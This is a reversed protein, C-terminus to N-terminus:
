LLIANEFHKNQGDTQYGVMLSLIQYDLWSVLDFYITSM